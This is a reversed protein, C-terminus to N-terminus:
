EANDLDGKKFICSLTKEANFGVPIEGTEKLIKKAETRSASYNTESVICRPDIGELEEVSKVKKSIWPTLKWDNVRITVRHLKTMMRKIGLRDLENALRDRLKTREKQTWKIEEQIQAKMKKLHEERSDLIGEFYISADVKEELEVQTQFLEEVDIEEGQRIQYEFHELESVINKLTRKQKSM